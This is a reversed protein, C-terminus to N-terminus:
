MDPFGVNNVIKVRTGDYRLGVAIYYQKIPLGKFAIGMNIKNIFYSVDLSNNKFDLLIGVRDRCKTLEGYKASDFKNSQNYCIRKCESLIFGWFNLPDNPFLNYDGRKLSLGIVISSEYPETELIFEIYKKGFSYFKDSLVLQIEDDGLKYAVKGKSELFVNISKNTESFMCSSEKLLMIRQNDRIREEKFTKSPNIERIYGNTTILRYQYSFKWKKIKPKIEANIEDSKFQYDSDNELIL